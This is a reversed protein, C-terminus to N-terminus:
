NSLRCSEGRNKDFQLLNRWKSSPERAHLKQMELFSPYDFLQYSNVIGKDIAQNCANKADNSFHDATTVFICDNGNNLLTAGLLDRIEKVAEAKSPSRRRKVQIMFPKDSNIMILDIGGDHSKGVEKVECLFHDRFVSAVLEEMKRDSINYIDDGHNVLYDRLISIPVINSNIEYRKLQASYVSQHWDKWYGEEELYSYFEVQWWGCGCQWVKESMDRWPGFTTQFADSKTEVLRSNADCFPCRGLVGFFRRNDGTNLGYETVVM